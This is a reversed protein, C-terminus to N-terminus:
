EVKLALSPEIRAARRAPLWAALLVVGMLLVVTAAALRPDIWVEQVMSRVLPRAAGALGLGAAAGAIGLGAAQGLVMRQVDRRTAGIAQRLAIERARQSVAYSVLGYLGLVALLVATAAFAGFLGLNFRRPGLWADLFQRMTGTGSVAADPDVARLHALFTARFAAPDSGTRVMWFQNNRLLAVGDTHVQRLPIYV